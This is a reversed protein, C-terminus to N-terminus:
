PQQKLFTAQEPKPAATPFVAFLYNIMKQCEEQVAAKEIDAVSIKTSVWSPIVHNIGEKINFLANIAERAQTVTFMLKSTSHTEMFEGKRKGFLGLLAALFASFPMVLRSPLM